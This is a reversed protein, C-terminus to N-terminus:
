WNCIILEVENDVLEVGLMVSVDADNTPLSITECPQHTHTTYAHMHAQIGAHTLTSVYTRILYM